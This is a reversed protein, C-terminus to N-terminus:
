EDEEGMVCYAPLKTGRKKKHLEKRLETYIKDVMTVGEPEFEDCAASNKHVLIDKRPCYAVLRQTTRNYGYTYTQRKTWTPSSCRGCTNAIKWNIGSIKKPRKDDGTTLCIFRYECEECNM